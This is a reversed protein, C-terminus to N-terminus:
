RPTPQTTKDHSMTPVGKHSPTGSGKTLFILRHISELKESGAFSRAFGLAERFCGVMVFAVRILGTGILFSPRFFVTLPLPPKEGKCPTLIGVAVHPSLASLIGVLPKVTLHTLVTVATVAVFFFRNGDCAM